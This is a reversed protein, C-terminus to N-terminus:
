FLDIDYGAYETRTSRITGDKNYETTKIPSGKQPNEGFESTFQLEGSKYFGAWYKKIGNEYVVSDKTNGNKWKSLLVGHKIVSDKKVQKYSTRIERSSGKYLYETHTIIRPFEASNYDIREVLLGDSNYTARINVLIGHDYNISDILKQKDNYHLWTGHKVWTKNDQLIYCGKSKINENKDKEEICNLNPNDDAQKPNQAYINIIQISFFCSFIIQLIIKSTM